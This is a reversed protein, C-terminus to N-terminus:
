CAALDIGYQADVRVVTAALRDGTYPPTGDAAAHAPTPRDRHDYVHTAIDRHTEPAPM